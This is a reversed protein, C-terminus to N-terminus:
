KASGIELELSRPFLINNELHVHHHTDTELEALGQLLARFTNCAGAPPTFGSSLSRMKVLDAGANDHEHEMMSVPQAISSLATKEGKALLRIQPFLVQEEKMMHAGMEAAFSSFVQALTVTWPHNAGHVSAVRGAMMGLRPLENKLFQHHTREIHDCLETLGMDKGNAEGPALTESEALLENVVTTADLGHEQCVDALRRKGGCCFDIQYKQFVRSRSPNETVLQGVSSELLSTNM